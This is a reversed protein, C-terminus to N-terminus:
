RPMREPPNNQTLREFIRLVKEALTVPDFPKTIVSNAGLSELRVIDEHQAHATMFIAPTTEFGELERLKQLLVGGNMEPMAVDLLFADVKESSAFELAKAPSSFQFLEIRDSLSLSIKTIELISLDDEVHLIRLTQTM